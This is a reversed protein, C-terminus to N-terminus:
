LFITIALLVICYKNGYAYVETLSRPKLVLKKFDLAKWAKSGWKKDFAIKQRSHLQRGCYVFLLIVRFSM